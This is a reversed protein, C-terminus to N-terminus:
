KLKLRMDIYGLVETVLRHKVFYKQKDTILDGIEALLTKENYTTTITKKLQLLLNRYTLGSLDKIIKEEVPFNQQFFFWVDFLDRNKYRRRLALLKNAFICWKTMAMIDTGYFNTTEYSDYSSRKKSIEIKINKEHEGYDLLFFITNQKDYEDKIKGYKQLITRMTTVIQRDNEIIDFDLDTSFRPLSHLFYCLTGGKFALFTKIDSQFIDQLIQYMITRHRPWDLM